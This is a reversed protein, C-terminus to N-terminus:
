ENVEKGSSHISHQNKNFYITKELDWQFSTLRKMKDISYKLPAILKNLGIRFKKLKNNETAKYIFDICIIIITFLTESLWVVWNANGIGKELKIFENSNIPNNDCVNVIGTVDKSSKIWTVIFDIVNNISVFQYKLGDGIKFAINPYKLYIRKYIDKMHEQSYVPAFRAIVYNVKNYGAIERLKNEAKHKSIGYDSVPVPISDETLIGDECAGYVDVTSAFFISAKVKAACEFIIKSALTNVRYYTNWDIMQGKKNHAIAALHIVSSIDNVKFVKEISLCDTINISIFKFNEHVVNAEKNTSIGLVKNGEELLAKTVKSGIFGDCGTILIYSM